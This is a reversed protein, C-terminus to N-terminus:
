GPRPSGPATLAEASSGIGRSEASQATGPRANNVPRPCVPPLVPQTLCSLAPRGTTGGATPVEENMETSSGHTAAQGQGSATKAPDAPPLLTVTIHTEDPESDTSWNLLRAERLRHLATRFVVPQV